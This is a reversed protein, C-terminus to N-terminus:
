AERRHSGTMGTQGIDRSLWASADLGDQAKLQPWAVVALLAVLSCRAIAKTHVKSALTLRSISTSTAM